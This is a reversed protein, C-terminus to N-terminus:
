SLLDLVSGIMEEQTQIIKINAEYGRQAIKTEVIETALDVNNSESNILSDEFAAEASNSQNDATQSASIETVPYQPSDVREIEVTVNQDAGEKLIARSRKFDESHMNAINDAHVGIKKGYASLASLSSNVSFM